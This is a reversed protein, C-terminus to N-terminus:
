EHVSGKMEETAALISEVIQMYGTCRCIVGNIAERIEEDVPNPNKDLLAKATLIMAPTCFGCQVGYHEVFAKQLPHLEGKEGKAADGIGEITLIEKGECEIALTLCSLTPKGNILVTCAGCEGAECGIKTGTLGLRERLVDVLLENPRVEIERDKGNVVMHIVKQTVTEPM